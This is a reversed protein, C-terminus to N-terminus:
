VCRILSGNKPKYDIRLVMLVLTILSSKTTPITSKIWKLNFITVFFNVLNKPLLYQCKLIYLITYFIRTHIKHSHYLISHELFNRSLKFYRVLLSRCIDLLHSIHPLPCVDPLLTECETLRVLRFHFALIWFIRMSSLPLTLRALTHVFHM